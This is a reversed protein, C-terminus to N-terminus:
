PLFAVLQSLLTFHARVMVYIPKLKSIIARLFGPSAKRFFPIDSIVGAHMHSKIDSQLCWPLDEIADEVQFGLPTLLTLLTRLDAPETTPKGPHPHAFYASYM